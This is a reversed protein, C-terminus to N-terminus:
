GILLRALDAMEPVAQVPMDLAAQTGAIIMIHLIQQPSGVIGHEAEDQVPM